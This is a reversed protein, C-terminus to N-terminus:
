NKETNYSFSILQWETAEYIYKQTIVIRSTHMPFFGNIVLLNDDDIMASEITPKIKSLASFDGKFNYISAFAEDLEAVTIQAQWFGSIHQHFVLMSKNKAADMFSSMSQSVLSEQKQITPETPKLAAKPRQLAIAYIKWDGDVKVFDVRTPIKAGKGNIVEGAISGKSNVFNRANWSSSQVDNMNNSELYSYISAADDVVYDSLQSNAQEQEGESVAAFFGEAVRTMGGTYFYLFGFLFVVLVVVTAIAKFIFKM